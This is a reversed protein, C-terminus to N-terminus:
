RGTEEARQSDGGHNVLYFLWCRVVLNTMYLRTSNMPDRVMIIVAISTAARTNNVQSDYNESKLRYETGCYAVWHMGSVAGALVIACISRKWWAATWTSRFLFFIGLASIAAVIAIIASAIVYGIEYSCDYNTISAQGLYHMGCVGLGALTGGMILRILNIEDNTGVAAFAMFIVSVPLFFSLATLGAGYSVQLIDAGDGLVVAQNGVFHMSFIAIGGM